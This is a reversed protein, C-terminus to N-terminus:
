GDLADALFRRLEKPSAIRFAAQTDHHGVHITCANQIQLRFMHEDTTDDGAIFVLDYPGNTALLQSVATGKDVQSGVIEVLKKGHRVSVSENAAVETLAEALQMAKWTGFEPDSQRYHWVLSTRKEEIFSGPTSAEYVKLVGMLEKKWDNVMAAEQWRWHTEGVARMAAGHEAVLTIPSDGLFRELDQVPRGSIVTVDVNPRKALTHILSLIKEGPVAAAPLAELERLTGDYDFFMGVRQQERFAQRLRAAAISIDLREVTAKSDIALAPTALDDVFSRAWWGADFSKVRQLMAAMRQLKEAVPMALAQEISDAVAQADYPNVILASFLEQAAGAFESLILVGAPNSEAQGAVYEKAVLNMGDVLPTVMCVDAISYLACLESFEVSGHIFHIPSNHLTAHRGNVQGVRGEVDQLLTQYEEVNERSPVAVFIFKLQDCEAPSQRSLFLDIADLRRLIGKTYDLREVSLIIKKRGFTERFLRQQAACEDTKLEAEMKKANIGIPYVGVVTTQRNHRIRLMEPEIGLLHLVASRFHRLYSFTHFGIRDAGLLGHLLETRKPHCQFIEHSPFPTHLFYGVSLSPRAHKLMAPLLMLQYDHVWVLDDDDAAALVEDAFKQNVARYTDWWGAEYRFRSPMSHLLPWLSANSFGEYFGDAESDTLFVPAAGFDRELIEHVAAQREVPVPAGPWGLWHLDFRDRPLGELASALGGSTRTVNEGSIRVPLRNSVNILKRRSKSM